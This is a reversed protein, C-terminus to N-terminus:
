RQFTNDSWDLSCMTNHQLRLFCSLEASVGPHIAFQHADFATHYQSQMAVINGLSNIDHPSLDVPELRNKKIHNNTYLVGGDNQVKM